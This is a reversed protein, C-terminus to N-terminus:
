LEFGLAELEDGLARNFVTVERKDLERRWRGVSAGASASTAHRERLEADALVPAPDLDVSLMRGIRRAEGPLDRVLEEYRVVPSEGGRPLEAIWQLRQRQNNLFRTRWTKEPEGERIGIKPGGRRANLDRISLWVDRPDRLVVLMRLEPLQDLDIMRTNLHKEAYYAVAEASATDGDAAMLSARRSFERWAHSFCADSMSKDGAAAEFAPRPLWPPPGILAQDQVLSGLSMPTWDEAPWDTRDLLRAWRLLYAFYKSEFPYTPEVAIQPATHLLRMLLTSGGRSAYDVLIPTLWQEPAAPTRVPHLRDGEAVLQRLHHRRAAVYREDRPRERELEERTDPPNPKPRLLVYGHGVGKRSTAFGDPKLALFDFARGWHARLWWKSHFVYPTGTTYGLSNMGVRSEDWSEGLLKMSMGRGLFTALLLGDPKLVRHMELLWASWQDSIHTFVSTALVLDFHSDPFALPPAEGNVEAAVVPPCLNEQLWEIMEADIDSGYFEAVEAEATFQRLLRGAGCGFDLIRKDEFTWDPPLVDLVQQRMRGGLAVYQEM